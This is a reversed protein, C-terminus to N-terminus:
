IALAINEILREVIDFKVAGMVFVVLLLVLLVASFGSDREHREVVGCIPRYLIGLIKTSLWYLCALLPLTILIILWWRASSLISGFILFESRFLMSSPVAILACLGLMLVVSGLPDVRWYGGIKSVKYSSYVRGVVSLQMYMVGKVITHGLSHFVAAFVGVGGLALGLMMIGGNELTSYALLRKFNGTRGLYVGSAIISALAIVLMVSRTWDGVASADIIHYLRLMAVFGGGVLASSIFGAAPSPASHNADIGVTFLPFIEMKTSYGVLIFLFALKLYLSNVGVQAVAQELGQYSLSHPSVTSLLLVGLYAIAIGVSSVFIYKWTAELARPTRRHYTLGATALTTAELFIWTVAINDAFFVGALAISLGILSVYYIKLHRMSEVDLYRASRWVALAGMIAMLCFYTVGMTDLVFFGLIKDGLHTLSWAGLSIQAVFFLIGLMSILDRRRSLIIGAICVIAIIIYYFIM